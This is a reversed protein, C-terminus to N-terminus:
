SRKAKGVRRVEKIVTRLEEELRELKEEVQDCEEKSMTEITIKCDEFFTKCYESFSNFRESFSPDASPVSEISQDVAQKLGDDQETSVDIGDGVIMDVENFGQDSQYAHDTPTDISLGNVNSPTVTLEEVQISDEVAQVQSTRRTARQNPPNSGTTSNTMRRARKTPRTEVASTNGSGQIPDDEADTPIRRKRSARYIAKPKPRTQIPSVPLAHEISPEAIATPALDMQQSLVSSKRGRKNAHEPETEMVAEDLKQSIAAPEAAQSLEAKNFPVVAAPRGRERRSRRQSLSENSQSVDPTGSLVADSDISEDSISITATSSNKGTDLKRTARRWFLEAPIQIKSRQDHSLNEWADKASRERYKRSRGSKIYAAFGITSVTITTLEAHPDEHFVRLVHDLVADELKTFKPTGSTTAQTTDPVTSSTSKSMKGDQSSSVAQHGNTFLSDRYSDYEISTSGQDNSVQVLSQTVDDKTGPIVVKFSDSIVSGDIGTIASAIPVEPYQQGASYQISAEMEARLQADALLASSSHAPSSFETFKKFPTALQDDKSAQGDDQTDAQAIQEHMEDFCEETGTIIDTDDAFSSVNELQAEAQNVSNDNSGDMETPVSPTNGGNVLCDGENADKRIATAEDDNSVAAPIHIFAEMDFEQTAEEVEEISENPPSSPVDDDQEQLKLDDDPKRPTSRRSLAATIPSSRLPSSSKPLDYGLADSPVDLMPTAARGEPSRLIDFLDDCDFVATQAATEGSNHSIEPTNHEDRQLRKYIPSSQIDPFMAAADHRQREAVDKQRDTLLQFDEEPVPSSEIRAFEIQSDDHRLPAKVQPKVPSNGRPKRINSQASVARAPSYSLRIHPPAPSRSLQRPMLHLDQDSEM